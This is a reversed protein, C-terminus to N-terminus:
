KPLIPKLEIPQFDYGFSSRTGQTIQVLQVPVTRDGSNQFIIPRSAGVANFNPHHLTQQIDKRTSGPRLATILAKTADYATASRWNVDGGWLKRSRTAFNQSTPAQIHWPVALVMNKGQGRTVELTRPSYVDDGALIPLQNDNLRVIQLARDLSDTNSALLIVEAGQATANSLSTQFDLAPLALDYETVVQGGQQVIRNSLETKLSQSYASESNFYLVAKKRNLVQFMYDALTQAAIADSPLTRFLYPSKNSLTVASSIPSITVLHGRTYSEAAALTTGSASHGVGGLIDPLKVLAEAIQSAIQVDNNDTGIVLSLLHGQIGGSRNFEQQAQAVGRLVERSGNSDVTGPIVVALKLPTQHTMAAITNNKYILTEPDNPRQQLSQLFLTQSQAYEGKAYAEMGQKKAFTGDEPFIGIAGESLRYGATNIQSTTNKSDPNSPDCGQLNLSLLSFILLMPLLPASRKNLTKM